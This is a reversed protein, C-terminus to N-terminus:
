LNYYIEFFFIVAGMNKCSLPEEQFHLKQVEILQKLGSVRETLM